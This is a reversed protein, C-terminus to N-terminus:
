GPNSNAHRMLSWAIMSSCLVLIASILFIAALGFHAAALGLSPAAIGLALDLFATYAGMALGRNEPAVRGVAELGLGPYILSYGCGTLFAGLLAIAPGHAFWILMQGAAEIFICLLAVKAGGMRDPLHGFLVRALIFAVAFATFAMWGDPWGQNSYFLTVFATIAGFGISSFALGVGPVWVSRLVTAISAQPRSVPLPSRLPLVFVFTILPVLTTALAISAFGYRAYLASGAPAGSAFAAYMATGIWAIVKGAHAKDVASLGWGLAGTIIFSEAAGLLARGLVLITVSLVPMRTFQLSALYLLGALSAAILGSLVARKGGKRDAYHGAWVRSVLSAAFQSGAVIGVVFTGLGLDHYVHLPLVPMALGIILFGVWVSGMIPLLALAVSLGRPANSSSASMIDGTSLTIFARLCRRHSSIEHFQCKMASDNKIIVPNNM